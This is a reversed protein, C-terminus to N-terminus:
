PYIQTTEELIANGNGRIQFIVKKKDFNFKLVGFSETFVVNGDRYM